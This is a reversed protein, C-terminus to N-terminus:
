PQAGLAPLIYSYLRLFSSILLGLTTVLPQGCDTLAVNMGMTNCASNTTFTSVEVYEGLIFNVLTTIKATIAVLAPM